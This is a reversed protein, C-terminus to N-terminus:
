TALITIESTITIKITKKKIKITIKADIVTTFGANSKPNTSVAPIKKFTCRTYKQRKKFFIQLLKKYIEAQPGPAQLQYLLYTFM